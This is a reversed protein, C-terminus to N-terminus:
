RAKKRNSRWIKGYRSSAIYTPCPWDFRRQLWAAAGGNHQGYACRDHRHRLHRARLRRDPPELRCPRRPVDEVLEGDVVGPLDLLHGAPPQFEIHQRRARDHRSELHLVGHMGSNEIATVADAVGPIALVLGRRQEAARRREAPVCMAHEGPEIRSAPLRQVTLQGVIDELEIQCAQKVKRHRGLREAPELLFDLADIVELADAVPGFSKGGVDEPLEPCRHCNQRAALDHRDHVATLKVRGTQVIGAGIKLKAKGLHRFEVHHAAMM